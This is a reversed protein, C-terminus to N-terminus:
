NCRGTRGRLVVRSGNSLNSHFQCKLIKRFYTSFICTEDFDRVKCLSLYVNIIMDRETRSLIFFTEVFTTCFTSVYMKHEIVNERLDKQKYEYSLTFVRQLALCAVSSFLAGACQM